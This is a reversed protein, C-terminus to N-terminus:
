CQIFLSFMKIVLAVVFVADRQNRSESFMLKGFLQKVQQDNKAFSVLREATRKTEYFASVVAVRNINEISASLRSDIFIELRSAIFRSVCKVTATSRQELDSVAQTLGFVM